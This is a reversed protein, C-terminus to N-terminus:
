YLTLCDGKEGLNKNATKLKNAAEILGFCGSYKISCAAASNKLSSLASNVNPDYGDTKIHNYCEGVALLPDSSYYTEMESVKGEYVEILYKLRQFAKEMNCQYVQHNGAFIAAYKAADREKDISIIQVPDKNLKKWSDGSKQYYDVQNTGTFSVATIKDDDMAQLKSHIGQIKFNTGAFDVIRVQFNKGPDVENLDIVQEVNFGETANIFENIFPDEGLLFYKTNSSTVFTFDIVKFPLKYPLSWLILQSTQIELPAFLPDVPNQAPNGKGKVGFEGLGDECNFFFVYDILGGTPIFNKTKESVGAGTLISEMIQVVETALHEESAAKQKVVLGVFFLLIVAGAILIYVWNFTVQIQASKNQPASPFGKNKKHGRKEHNM